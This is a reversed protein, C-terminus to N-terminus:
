ATRKPYDRDLALNLHLVNVVPEGLVGLPRGTTNADILRVVTNQPIGRERAVRPAQLRAYAPSIDPDLGSGSATVADPLVAPQASANGRIPTVVGKSYDAGPTACEVPVNDYAVLFAVTPCAQNLSVVRTVQGTLGGTRFVSLVAGVGDPTCYPRSGDVGELIGIEKSRQCIRTLLSQKGSSPDAPDSPLTDVVDEPGLNSASSATPDYGAGAASPRTQFYWPIPKGAADTFQQGILTSGVPRGDPGHAISGQAQSRLGPIQAVATMALPYALGLVVTLVLVARLAVLHHALWPKTRM